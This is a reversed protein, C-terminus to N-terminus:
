QEGRLPRANAGAPVRDHWPRAAELQAALSFLLEERAFGAGFQVGIPLGTDSWSLPLSVAPFGSFNYPETNPTQDFADPAITRLAAEMLAPLRVTSLVQLAARQLPRLEMSGIPVPPTAMTPTLLVDYSEFFEAMERTAIEVDSWAEAFREASISRGLEYLFRTIPELTAAGIRKGAQRAVERLEVGLATAPMIFYAEMLRRRDLAPVAPVVEHGLERCLAATEEVARACSPDTTSGLLPESAVAVRLKSPSRRTADLFGRRAEPMAFPTRYGPGNTLDLIAASDRVSRTLVHEEAFGFVPRLYRPGAPNRGRSPKMGVLGCASAPIRLSGGGDNGHAVPVMRAAVAAASGGSSGGPSRATDWPNRCAGHMRSETVALVGLEPVNTKGLTLLGAQKFRRMLFSDEEPTLEAYLPCSGTTPYGGYTLFLDKILFPVGFFPADRLSPSASRLTARAEEFMPRIVANLLPNWQEIRAVAAELVEEPPVEGARILQALGTADYRPYEPFTEPM